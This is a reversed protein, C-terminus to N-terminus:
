GCRRGLFVFELWRQFRNPNCRCKFSVPSLRITREAIVMRPERHVATSLDHQDSEDVFVVRVGGTSAQDDVCEDALATTEHTKMM